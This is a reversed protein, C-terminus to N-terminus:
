RSTTGIGDLSHRRLLGLRERGHQRYRDDGRRRDAQWPLQGFARKYDAVLNRRHRQWHKLRERGTDVVLKQIRSTHPNAVLSEKPRKNAWIYM